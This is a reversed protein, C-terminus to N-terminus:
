TGTGQGDPDNRDLHHLVIGARTGRGRQLLALEWNPNEEIAKLIPKLGSVKVRDGIRVAVYNLSGTSGLRGVATAVVNIDDTELDPERGPGDSLVYATKGESQSV